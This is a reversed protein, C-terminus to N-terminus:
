LSSRQYNIKQVQASPSTPKPTGPMNTPPTSSILDSGEFQIQNDVVMFQSTDEVSVKQFSAEPQAFDGNVGPWAHVLVEGQSRSTITVSFRIQNEISGM